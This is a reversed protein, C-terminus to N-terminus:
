EKSNDITYNIQEFLKEVDEEVIHLIEDLEEKSAGNQSQKVYDGMEEHIRDHIQITQKWSDMSTFSENEVSKIWKGFDCCCSGVVEVNENGEQVETTIHQKFILHANKLKATNIALAAKNEVSKELSLRDIFQDYTLNRENLYNTLFEFSEEVSHTKEYEVLSAYLKSIYQKAFNNVPKRYSIIQDIEGNKYVPKVYAKVWYYDGNKAKNKVFAYITKGSLVRQWLLFFVVKPMDEHRILNHPEGILEEKDYGAIKSFIENTYTINGKKDTASVILDEIKVEIENGDKAM